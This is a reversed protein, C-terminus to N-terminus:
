PQVQLLTQLEMEGTEEMGAQTATVEQQQLVGVVAEMEIHQHIQQVMVALQVKHLVRQPPIGRPERKMRHFMEERVAALVVRQLYVRM